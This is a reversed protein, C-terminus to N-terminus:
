DMQVWQLTLDDDEIDEEARAVAAWRAFATQDMAVLRRLDAWPPLDLECRRFIWQAMADTALFFEDGSCWGGSAREAMESAREAELPKSPLLHPRTGFQVAAQLPFSSALEGERVHFLCTDGVAIAEWRGGHSDEAGESLNLLLLTAFAGNSIKSEEYWQLPRGAAERHALYRREWEAWSKTARAFAAEFDSVPRRTLLDVLGAAWERAFFAESAGDAVAVRLSIVARRRIPGVPLFADEFERDARDSKPLWATAVSARM